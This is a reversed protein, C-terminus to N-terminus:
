EIGAVTYRVEGGPTKVSITDGVRKGLLEKGVPSENSIKGEEPRAENSGVIMYKVTQKGKELTVMSGIQVQEKAGGREIIAANKVMEELEFIRREIQEQEEKAETYEANESLDGFEKARKLREAVRIRANTKLDALEKKIEELREKTLYYPQIM